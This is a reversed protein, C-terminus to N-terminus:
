NGPHVVEIVAGTRADIVVSLIDRGEADQYNLFWSEGSGRGGKAPVLGAMLTAGPGLKDGGAKQATEYLKKSDLIIKDDFRIMQGGAGSRAFCRIEGDSIGIMDVAKASPSSFKIDWDTSRGAADLPGSTTTTLDFPVADAQWARARPGALEWAERATIAAPKGTKGAACTAKTEGAAPAVLFLVLLAALGFRIVYPHERM